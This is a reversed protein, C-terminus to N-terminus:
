TQHNVLLKHWRLPVQIYKNSVIMVFSMGMWALLIFSSIAPGQVINQIPSTSHLIPATELDRDRAKAGRIVVIGVLGAVGIEASFILCYKRLSEWGAQGNPGDEDHEKTSTDGISAELLDYNEMGSALRKTGTYLRSSTGQLDSAMFRHALVSRLAVCLIWLVMM